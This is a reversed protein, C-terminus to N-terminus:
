LQTGERYARVTTGDSVLAIHQWSNAPVAGFTLNAAGSYFTLTGNALYLDRNAGVTAITEFDTGAPNFVWAELTFAATLAVDTNSRVRTSSGDFVIANGFRGAATWNPSTATAATNNSSADAVATGSGAEFGYGVRIDPLALAPTAVAVGGALLAAVLVFVKLVASRMPCRVLSATRPRSRAQPPSRPATRSRAPRPQRPRPATTTRFKSSRATRTVDARPM